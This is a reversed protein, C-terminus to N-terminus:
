GQHRQLVLGVGAVAPHHVVVGLVSLGVGDKDVGEVGDLYAKCPDQALRVGHAAPERHVQDAHEDVGLVVVLACWRQAHLPQVPLRRPRRDEDLKPKTAHQQGLM